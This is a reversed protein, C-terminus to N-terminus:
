WRELALQKAIDASPPFHSSALRGRNGLRTTYTEWTETPECRVERGTDSTSPVWTHVGPHRILGPLSTSMDLLVAGPAGSSSPPLSTLASAVVAENEVPNLSCTSYVLRGGPRLLRLARSLIRLQLSGALHLRVTGSMAFSESIFGMAMKLHGNPGFASTRAFHAMVQVLCMVSSGILSCRKSTGM